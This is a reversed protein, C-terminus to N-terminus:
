PIIQRKKLLEVVRARNVLFANWVAVCWADIARDRGAGPEAAMVDIAQVAGREAPLEFWPWPGGQKALKMHARQVEKGSFKEEIHLYLGVLSFTIAIPKTDANANQATFADVIHQHIFTADRLSLTYFSLEDYAERESTM